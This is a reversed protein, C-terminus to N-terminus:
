SADGQAAQRHTEGAPAPKRSRGPLMRKRYALFPVIAFGAALLLCVLILFLADLGQQQIQGTAVTWGAVALAALAVALCFGCVLLPERTV